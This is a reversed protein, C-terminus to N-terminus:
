DLEKTPKEARSSREKFQFWNNSSNFRVWNVWALAHWISWCILPLHELVIFTLSSYQVYSWTTAPCLSECVSDWLCHALLLNSDVSEFCIWTRAGRGRQLLGHRWWRVDGLGWDQQVVDKAWKSSFTLHLWTPGRSINNMYTCSVSYQLSHASLSLSKKLLLACPLLLASILRGSHISLHM